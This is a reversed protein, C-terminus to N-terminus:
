MDDRFGTEMADCITNVDCIGKTDCTGIMHERSGTHFQESVKCPHKQNM